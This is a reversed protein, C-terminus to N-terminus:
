IFIFVLGLRSSCFLYFPSFAGLMKKWEPHLESILSPPRAKKWHNRTWQINGKLNNRKEVDNLFQEAFLGGGGVEIGDKFIEIM